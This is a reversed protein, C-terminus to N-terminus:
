LELFVIATSMKRGENIMAQIILDILETASVIHLLLSTIIKTASKEFGLKADNIRLWAAPTHSAMSCTHPLVKELILIKGGDSTVPDRPFLINSLSLKQSYFPEQM